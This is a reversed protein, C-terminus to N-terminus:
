KGESVRAKFEVKQQKILYKFGDLQIESYHFFAPVEFDESRIFGFGKERYYNQVIGEYVKGEEVSPVYDPNAEKQQPKKYNANNRRHANNSRAKKRQFSNRPQQNGFDLEQNDQYNGDTNGGRAKKDSKKENGNGRKKNAVMFEHSTLM